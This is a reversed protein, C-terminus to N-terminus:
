RTHFHVPDPMFQAFAYIHDEAPTVKGVTQLFLRGIKHKDTVTLVYQKLCRMDALCVAQHISASALDALSVEYWLIHCMCDLVQNCTPVLFHFYPVSPM